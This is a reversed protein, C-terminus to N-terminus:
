NDCWEIGYLELIVQGIAVLKKMMSENHISSSHTKYPNKIKSFVDLTMISGLANSLFISFIWKKSFRYKSPQSIFALIMFGYNRLDLFWYQLM